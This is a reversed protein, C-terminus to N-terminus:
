KLLEALNSDSLLDKRIEDLDPRDEPKHKWCKTIIDVWVAPANDPIDPRERMTVVDMVISYEGKKNFPKLRTLLEWLFMAFSYVDAKENYPGFELIEPACFAPTGCAQSTNLYSFRKNKLFDASLKVSQRFSDTKLRAL